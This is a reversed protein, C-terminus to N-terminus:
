IMKDGSFGSHNLTTVFHINRRVQSEEQDQRSSLHLARLPFQNHGERFVKQLFDSQEPKNLKFVNNNAM